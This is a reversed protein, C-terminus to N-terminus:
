ARRGGAAGPAAAPPTACEDVHQDHLRHRHGDHEYDLHDGHQVARHGCGEGHQHDHHEHVNCAHNVSRHSETHPTSM